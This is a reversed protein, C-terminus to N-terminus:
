GQFTTVAFAENSMSLFNAPAVCRVTFECGSSRLCWAPSSSESRSRSQQGNSRITGCRPAGRELRLQLARHPVHNAPVAMASLADEMADQLAGPGCIFYQLTQYRAPLRRRLTEAGIFGRDGSWDPEPDTVVYWVALDLKTALQGIEESFAAEGLNNVGYFLHCPRRDARAALTRLMSMIPSIGVGGAIFGFGPGENRDPSFVGHPGDIYARTGPQIAAITTTFDGLSKIGMQLATPDDGNSSFSFPHQTLSFPSRNM